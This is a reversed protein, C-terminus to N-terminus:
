TIQIGKVEWQKLYNDHVIKHFKALVVTGMTEEYASGISAQKIRNSVIM